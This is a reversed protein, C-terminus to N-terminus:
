GVDDEGALAVGLRQLQRGIARRLARSAELAAGSGAALAQQGLGVPDDRATAAAAAFTPWTRQLTAVAHERVARAQTTAQEGASELGRGVSDVFRSALSTFDSALHDLDARAYRGFEGASELLTLELAQAVTALGDGVGDVVQRLTDAGGHPAAEAAGQAAGEITAHAIAALGGAVGRADRAASAVAEAVQKRVAQGRRVIDRARERVWAVPDEVSNM